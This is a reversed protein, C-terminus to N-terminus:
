NSSVKFSDPREEDLGGAVLDAGFETTTSNASAEREKSACAEHNVTEPLQGPPDRIRCSWM